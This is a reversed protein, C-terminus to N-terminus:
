RRRNGIVEKVTTALTEMTFPKQLFRDIGSELVAKVRVDQKMGSILIVRLDPDIEKMRSYADKGSMVPMAMDLLVLEIKRHHKEFIELAEKGNEAMMVSYGCEELIDGSSIRILEEDDVVLVLGEGRPIEPKNPSDELQNEAENLVPLCLKITTGVGKQSQIEIFGSHLSISNYVMSMGLGTGKGESKTTFFPDFILNVTETEMGVGTDKVSLGWYDSDEADPHATKFHEDMVIRDTSLTLVGGWSENNEKMITMSHEANVCLNLLIQEIQSPDASVMVPRDQYHPDLQVSKDCSSRAIKMVHQITQNLDVPAFNLDQKRSLSLLQRIMDAARVSSQTMVSIYDLLMRSDMKKKLKIKHSMVSLTALIGGLVNNFDHALGGALTGVTEMKQAQVLEKEAKIRDTLDRVTSHLVTKDNLQMRTILVTSYFETGDPRKYKWKFFHSGKKLASLAMRKAKEESLSGDDQYLPSFDAPARSMLESEERCGFLKIAAPNANIVNEGPEVILVADKSNIYLDRYREESTRLKKEVRERESIEKELELLKAELTTAHASLLAEKEKHYDISKKLEKPSVELEALIQGYVATLETSEQPTFLDAAEILKHAAATGIKGSLLKEANSSFDMLELVTIRKKNKLRTIRLTRELLSEARTSGLYRKLPPFLRIKKEDLDIKGVQTSDMKFDPTQLGVFANATEDGTKNNPFILSGSIYFGMNFLISWFVGHPVAPLGILGFLSEPNLLGIGFPGSVLIGPALWGSRVFTPLLLSYFWILSGAGLGMIAGGQSGKRWFIGGIICPAFQFAAAFSIIGMNVLSYNGAMAREFWYGFVIVATVSLWRLKLIQVRLFGFGPFIDLLPLLIHNTLMTSLTMASIMIMSAGASFGGVFVLMTLWDNGFQLPLFLVFMDAHRAPLGKMLGVLAIPLVFLNILFMYLPFLWKATKIHDISSNEVVALHFQRPLFFVASMGLLLYTIWTSFAIDAPNSLAPGVQRSQFQEWRSFIDLFGDFIFYCVFIGISLFAVLKVISEVAVAFVMGQHRETPDLKRVGFMITFTIMLIVIVPGIYASISFSDGVVPIALVEFASIIAKFQLAIYPAIGIFIIITVMAALPQSRNYRAAIFDAISNIRHTQKIKVLKVLIKDWLIISLTPGIFITLFLLSSNAASGVSGYFTWSTCYVALSLSYVVSNNALTKGTSKKREAWNAVFFLLGVYICIVLIIIIPDLM